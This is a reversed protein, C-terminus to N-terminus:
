KLNGRIVKALYAGQVVQQNFSSYQTIDILLTDLQKLLGSNIIQVFEYSDIDILHLRRLSMLQCSKMSSSILSWVDFTNLLTLRISIIRGEIMKFVNECIDNFMSLVMRNANIHLHWIYEYKIISSFRKNLSFFSQVIELPSLYGFIEFLLDVPLLEFTNNSM